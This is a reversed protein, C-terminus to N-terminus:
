PPKKRKGRRPQKQQRKAGVQALSACPPPRSRSLHCRAWRPPGMAPWRGSLLAMRRGLPPFSLCPPVASRHCRHQPAETMDSSLPVLPAHGGPHPARDPGWLALTSSPIPSCQVQPYPSSPPAHSGWPAAPHGWGESPCASGLRPSELLDQPTQPHLVGIGGSGAGRGRQVLSAPPCQPALPCGQGPSAHRPSPPAASNPTSALQRRGHSAAPMALTPTVWPTISPRLLPTSSRPPSIIPNKPSHHARPSRPAALPPSM